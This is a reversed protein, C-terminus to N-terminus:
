IYRFMNSRVGRKMAVPEGGELELGAEGGDGSMDELTKKLAEDRELLTQQTLKEKEHHSIKGASAKQEIQSPANDTAQLQDGEPNRGNREAETEAAGKVSSEKPLRTSDEKTFKPEGEPTRTPFARDHLYRALPSRRLRRLSRLSSM